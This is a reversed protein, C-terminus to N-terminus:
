HPKREPAKKEVEIVLAGTQEIETIMNVRIDHEPDYDTDYWQEFIMRAYEFGVVRAGMTLVNANNHEKAMKASYCDSVCAARIGKVKNAVMSMGLGTGCLLLGCECEQAAVALALPYGTHPYQSFSTDYCGFDKYELNREKFYEIFQMKLEFAVFDCGIAIM